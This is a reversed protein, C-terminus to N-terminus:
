EDLSLFTNIDQAAAVAHQFLFGHASDPYIRITANPILGALVYSLKTPIMLDDDGQIVFTPQQIGTLRELAGLNPIGWEVIADYQADRAAQTYTQDRGEQREFIRGLVTEAHARGEADHPYFVYALNEPQTNLEQTNDEIDQRWRHTGPAGRPATAALIVRRVVRPRILAVEQAIFGGISYGLLDFLELGVADTFALLDIAMRTISSAPRGTSEGIGVNDFLVVEREEALADVFQPDWNDITGRFHVIMVLPPQGGAKGFRRYAYTEGNAAELRLTPALLHQGMM